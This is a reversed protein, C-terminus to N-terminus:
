FFLYLALKLEYEPRLFVVELDANDLFQRVKKEEPAKLLELLNLGTNNQFRETFVSFNESKYGLMYQAYEHDDTQFRVLYLNFFYVVLYPAMRTFLDELEDFDDDIKPNMPYGTDNAFM